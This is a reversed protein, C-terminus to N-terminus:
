KIEKAKNNMEDRITKFINRNGPKMGRISRENASNLFELIKITAEKDNFAEPLQNLILSKTPKHEIKDNAALIEGSLKRIIKFTENRQQGGMLNYLRKISDMVNNPFRQETADRYTGSSAVLYADQPEARGKGKDGTLSTSTNYISEDTRGISNKITSSLISNDSKLAALMREKIDDFADLQMMDNVTQYASKCQGDIRQRRRAIDQLVTGKEMAETNEIGIREIETKAQQLTKKYRRYDMSDISREHMSLDSSRQAAPQRPRDPTRPRDM